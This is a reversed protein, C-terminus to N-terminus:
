KRGSSQPSDAVMTYWSAKITAKVLVEVGGSGIKRLVPHTIKQERTLDFGTIIIQGPFGYNLLYIFKYIDADDMAELSFDMDTKLIKYGSQKVDDNEQVKAPRINYRVSLRCEKEMANLRQKALVRDQQEFFGTEQIQNFQKKQSSFNDLGSVLKNINKTMSSIESINKSLEYQNQQTKPRLVIDGYYFLFSILAALVGLIIIKQYGIIRIM